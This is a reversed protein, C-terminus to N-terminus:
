VTLTSVRTRLEHEARLWDEEPSGGQYGRAEWYLYAQQSIEDYTPEYTAAAPASQATSLEVIPTSPTEAQTPSHKTRTTATKHRSTAAAAAGSSVVLEKESKQKRAM